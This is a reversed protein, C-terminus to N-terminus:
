RACVPPDLPALDCRGNKIGTSAVQAGWCTNDPQTCNVSAPPKPALALCYSDEVDIFAYHVSLDPQYNRCSRNSWCQFLSVPLFCSLCICPLSRCSSFSSAAVIARAFASAAAASTCWARRTVLAVSLLVSLSIAQRGNTCLALVSCPLSVALPSVLFVACSYACPSLLVCCLDRHRTHRNTCAWQQISGTNCIFTNAPPKAVCLNSSVPKSDKADV